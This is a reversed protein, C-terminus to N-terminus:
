PLEEPLNFIATWEDVWAKALALRRQQSARRVKRRITRLHHPNM